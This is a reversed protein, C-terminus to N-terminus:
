TPQGGQELVVNLPVSSKLDGDILIEFSYRGPHPLMPRGPFTWPIPLGMEEGAPIQVGPPPETGEMRLEVKTIKQGDEDQLLVELEHDHALESPRALIRLALSLGLPSPFETRGGQTIGGGLIFLLGDRVTVAECLLATDVRM